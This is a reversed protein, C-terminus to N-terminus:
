TASLSKTKVELIGVSHNRLIHRTAESAAQVNGLLPRQSVGKIDGVAIVQVRHTDIVDIQYKMIGFTEM